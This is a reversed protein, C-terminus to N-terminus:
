HSIGTSEVQQSDQGRAYVFCLFLARNEGAGFAACGLEVRGKTRNRYDVVFLQMRSSTTKHGQVSVLSLDLMM